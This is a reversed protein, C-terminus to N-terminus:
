VQAYANKDKLIKGYIEQIFYRASPNTIGVLIRDPNIADNFATGERLFEPHSIFISDNYKKSLRQHTGPPVTSKIVLKCLLM